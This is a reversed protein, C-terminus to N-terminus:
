LIIIVGLLLIIIVGLLLLVCMLYYFRLRATNTAALGPAALLQQLLTEAPLNAKEAENAHAPDWSM